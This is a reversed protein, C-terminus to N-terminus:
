TDAADNLAPPPRILMSAAAALLFTLALLAGELVLDLPPLFLPAVFPSLGLAVLRHSIGPPRRASGVILLYFVTPTLSFFVLAGWEGLAVGVTEYEGPGAILAVAATLAFSMAVLLVFGRGFWRFDTICGRGM